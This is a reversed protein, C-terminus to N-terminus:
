FGRQRIYYMQKERPTYLIFYKEAEDVYFTCYYNSSNYLENNLIRGQKCKSIWDFIYRYRFFTLTDVPCRRWKTIQISNSFKVHEWENECIPYSSDIVVGDVQYIYLGFLDGRSWGIFDKRYKCHYKVHTNPYLLALDKEQLPSFTLEEVIVGLLLSIIAVVLTYKLYKM